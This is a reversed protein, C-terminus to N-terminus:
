LRHRLTYSSRRVMNECDVNLLKGSVGTVEVTLDYFQNAFINGILSAKKSKSPGEENIVNGLADRKIIIGQAGPAGGMINWWEKLEKVREREEGELKSIDYGPAVLKWDTTYHSWAQIDMKYPKIKLNYAILIEGTSVPAPLNEAYRHFFLCLLGTGALTRTPDCVTIQVVYDTGKTKRPPSFNAVVGIVNVLKNEM